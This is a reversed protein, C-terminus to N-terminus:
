PPESTCTPKPPLAPPATVTLVTRTIAQSLCCAPRIRPSFCRSSKVRSRAHGEQGHQTCACRYGRPSPRESFFLPIIPAAITALSSRRGKESRPPRQAVMTPRAPVSPSSDSSLSMIRMSQFDTVFGLSAANQRQTVIRLLSSTQLCSYESGQCGLRRTVEQRWSPATSLKFFAYNADTLGTPPTSESCAHAPAHSHAYM